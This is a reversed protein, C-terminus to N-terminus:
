FDNDLGGSNRARTKAKAAVLTLGQEDKTPNAVDNMQPLLDYVWLLALYVAIGTSPKGKEADMAARPGTGIKRAVEHITLNRRVRATRLSEGLRKLAQEVPYPPAQLLQNRASM